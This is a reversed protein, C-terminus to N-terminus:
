GTQHRHRFGILGPVTFFAARGFFEGKIKMYDRFLKDCIEILIHHPLM